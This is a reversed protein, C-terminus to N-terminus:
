KLYINIEGAGSEGSAVARGQIWESWGGTEPYQARAKWQFGLDSVTSIKFEYTGNEDTRTTKETYWDGQQMMTDRYGMNVTIDAAPVNNLYVTGRFFYEYQNSDNGDKGCNILFLLLFLTTVNKMATGKNSLKQLQYLRFLSSSFDNPM